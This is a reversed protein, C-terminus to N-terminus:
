QMLMFTVVILPFAVFDGESFLLKKLILFTQSFFFVACSSIIVLLLTIDMLKTRRKVLKCELSNTTM